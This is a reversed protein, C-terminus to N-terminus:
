SLHEHRLLHAGALWGIRELEKFDKSSKPTGLKRLSSDDMHVALNQQLWDSELHVDYRLYRVLPTGGLPPQVLGIERDICRATPSESLWQLM